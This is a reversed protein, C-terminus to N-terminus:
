VARRRRAGLVLAGLGVCVGAGPGPITLTLYSAIRAPAHQGSIAQGGLLITYAGPLFTGTIAFVGGQETGSIRLAGDPDTPAGLIGPGSISVLLHEVIFSSGPAQITGELLFGTEETVLVTMTNNFLLMRGPGSLQGSATGLLDLRVTQPDIIGIDWNARYGGGEMSDVIRTPVDAWNGSGGGQTGSWNGTHLADQFIAGSAVQATCVLTATFLVNRM